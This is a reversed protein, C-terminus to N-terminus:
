PVTLLLLFFYSFLAVFTVHTPHSPLSELVAFERPCNGYTPVGIRPPLRFSNIGMRMAPCNTAQTGTDSHIPKGLHPSRRSM